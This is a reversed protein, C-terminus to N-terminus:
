ETKPSDEIERHWSIAMQLLEAADHAGLKQKLRSCYTEVTKISILLEQSISGPRYGMGLLKFIELERDSLRDVLSGTDHLEGGSAKELLREAVVQSLYIKGSLVKRMAALLTESSAHKMVYGKAGARVAREAYLAEPHMSLVLSPLSRYLKRVMKILEIGDMGPLSIDVLLLDPKQGSLAKLAEPGSNASGCVELDAQQNVLQSIGDRMIPHDDVIFVKKRKNDQPM